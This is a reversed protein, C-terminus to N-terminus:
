KQKTSFLFDVFENYDVQGNDDADMLKTLAELQTPKADPHVKQLAKALKARDILGDGNRDWMRFTAQVIDKETSLSSALAKSFKANASNKLWDVFEQYNLKGDGTQDAEALIELVTGGSLTNTVRRMLTGLEPRSLKGNNNIDAREFCAHLMKWRMDESISPMDKYIRSLFKQSKSANPDTAGGGHFVPVAEPCAEQMVLGATAREIGWYRRHHDHHLFVGKHDHGVRTGVCVMWFRKPKLPEAGAYNNSLFKVVWEDEKATPRVWVDPEDVDQIWREKKLLVTRKDQPVQM